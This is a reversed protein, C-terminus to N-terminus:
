RCIKKIKLLVYRICIYCISIISLIKFAPKSKHYLRYVPSWCFDQDEDGLINSHGVFAIKGNLVYHLTKEDVNGTNKIYDFANINRFYYSRGNGLNGFYHIIKANYLYRLGDQVIQCNWIGDLENIPYDMQRNTHALAIQDFYLGKSKEYLWNEHWKKYFQHCFETDNVFMVGSNYHVKDYIMDDWGVIHARKIQTSHNMMENFNCHSDKVAAIDINQLLLEDIEDLRDTIITDVDIFLYPGKIRGRLTTKLARSKQKNPLHELENVVILENIYNQIIDRKDTLGDKTSKDTVITVHAYPNYHRLSILSLLLQELYFDKTQSVLCYVIKTIM